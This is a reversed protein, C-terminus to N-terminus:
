HSVETNTPHYNALPGHESYRSSKDQQLHQTTKSPLMDLEFLCVCVLTAFYKVQTDQWIRENDLTTTTPAVYPDVEGASMLASTPM